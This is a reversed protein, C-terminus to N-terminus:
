NKKKVQIIYPLSHSPSGDCTLWIRIEKGILKTLPITGYQISNNAEDSESSDGANAPLQVVILKDNKDPALPQSQLSEQVSELAPFVPLNILGTFYVSGTCNASRCPAVVSKPVNVM